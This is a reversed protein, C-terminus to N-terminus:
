ADEHRWRENHEFRASRAAIAEREFERLLEPATFIQDHVFLITGGTVVDYPDGYVICGHPRKIGNILEWMKTIELPFQDDIAASWHATGFEFCRTPLSTLPKVEVFASDHGALGPHILFDPLYPGSPLRFGQVEYAWEGGDFQDFFVAWRAELRSRFRYGKYVTEIPRVDIM